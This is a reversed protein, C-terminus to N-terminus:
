GPRVVVREGMCIVVNRFLRRWELPDGSAKVFRVESTWVGGVVVRQLVVHGNLGMGNAGSRGAAGSAKVRVSAEGKQEAREMDQETHMSAPIGLRLLADVVLPILTTIGLPSIFRSFTSPPLIDKFDRAAQTLTMLTQSGTGSNTAFQSMAPDQSIAEQTSNPLQSFDTSMQSTPPPNQFALHQSPREWDFPQNAYPTIPEETITADNTLHSAFRSRRPSTSDVDMADPEKSYPDAETAQSANPTQSPRQSMAPGKTFDIRLQSLMETAMEVPQANRGSPSLYKNPRRYWPHSQIDRITFRGEPELRLMGLLLDLMSPPLSEWLPDTTNGKTEVFEKFEESRMTPEDWPTNGVLLVFLVVGVSWIDCIEAAYGEDLLNANKSRRGRVV